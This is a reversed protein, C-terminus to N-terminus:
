PIDNGSLKLADCRSGDFFQWAGCQSRLSASLQRHIRFIRFAEGGHLPDKEDIQHHRIIGMNDIGTSPHMDSKRVFREGKRLLPGPVQALEEECPEVHLVINFFAALQTRVESLAEVYRM